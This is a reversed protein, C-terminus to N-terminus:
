ELITNFLIITERKLAGMPPAVAKPVRINNNNDAHRNTALVLVIFLAWTMSVNIPDVTPTVHTDLGRGATTRCDMQPGKATRKCHDEDGTTRFEDELFGPTTGCTRAATM